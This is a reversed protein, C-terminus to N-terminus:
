KGGTHQRVVKAARSFGGLNFVQQYGMQRLKRAAIGSRGGSLCHLLLPQNKDPAVRAIREELEHLPVNVAGPLHDRQYEEPTRVDIVKAGQRLHELAARVSVLGVSKWLVLAAVAALVIVITQWEM